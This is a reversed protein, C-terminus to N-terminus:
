VALKQRRSSVASIASHKSRAGARRRVRQRWRTYTRRSQRKFMFHKVEDYTLGFEAQIAEFTVTDAWAMLILREHDIPSIRSM